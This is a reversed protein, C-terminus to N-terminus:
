GTGPECIERVRSDRLRSCAIMNRSLTSAKKSKDVSFLYWPKAASVTHIRKKKKRETNYQTVTAQIRESYFLSLSVM